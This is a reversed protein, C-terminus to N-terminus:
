RTQCQVAANHAPFSCRRESRLRLRASLNFSHLMALGAAYCVAALGREAQQIKHPRARHPSPLGRPARTSEIENSSPAQISWVHRASLPPKAGVPEGQELPTRKPPLLISTKLM